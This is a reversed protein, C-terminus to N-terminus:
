LRPLLGRQRLYALATLLYQIRGVVEIAGHRHNGPHELEFRGILKGVVEHCGPAFVSPCDFGIGLQLHQKGHEAVFRKRRQSRGAIERHSTAPLTFHQRNM